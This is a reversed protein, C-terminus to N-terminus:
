ATAPQGATNGSAAAAEAESGERERVAVARNTLIPACWGAILMMAGLTFWGPEKWVLCLATLLPPTILGSIQWSMTWVAQYQGAIEPRALSYQVGWAGAAQRLEGLVHVFAGLLVVGAAVYPQHFWAASAYVVFGGALYYSSRQMVSAAQRPTDTGKSAKVQFLAVMVTNVITTAAVVWKPATTFQDVYLPVALNLVQYHMSLITNVGVLGVYHKDRLAETRRRKNGGPVPDLDPLRLRLIANGIWTIGDLVFLVKFALATNISLAIGAAMAGLAIGINTVARQYAMMSVREAGERLRGMYAQQNVRMAVQAIVGTVELVIFGRLDTIFISAASFFGVAIIAWFGFKRPRYKDVLNGMPLVIALSLAAVAAYTLALWHNSIHIFRTFYIATTASLLGNGFTNVLTALSLVRVIPDDSIFREKLNRKLWINM